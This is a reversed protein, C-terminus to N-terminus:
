LCDVFDRDGRELIFRRRWEDTTGDRQVVVGVRNRDVTPKDALALLNAVADVSASPAAAVDEYTLRLPAIDNRAFYAEWRAYEIVIKALFAAIIDADYTPQSTMPQTHRYQGTQSARSWSIAQGLLDRRTLFLYRLDPLHETWRIKGSISDHQHAFVKVAYIGNATTGMSLIRRVQENPDDPYGPDDFYRRGAGNFYELPNGLMGTSALLQCLFNSGSRPATCIAYGRMMKGSQQLTPTTGSRLKRLSKPILAKRLRRRLEWGTPERAPRASHHNLHPEITV